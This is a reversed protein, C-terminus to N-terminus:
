KTPPVAFWLIASEGDCVHNMNVLINAWTKGKGVHQSVCLWRRNYSVCVLFGIFCSAKVIGFQTRRVPGPVKCLKVLVQSIEDPLPVADAKMPRVHGAFFPVATM